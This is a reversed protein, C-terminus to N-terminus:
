EDIHWFKRGNIFQNGVIHKAAATPSKFTKGLLAYGVGDNDQVVTLVYSTGKYRHEYVSGIPPHSKVEWAM